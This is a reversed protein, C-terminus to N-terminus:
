CHNLKQYLAMYRDVMRRATFKKEYTLRANAGLKDSLKRNACLHAISQRLEQVCGAKVLIGDYGHTVISTNGSKIKTTIAPRGARFGELIAIGFAEARSTSPLVVCACNKILEIKQAETVSEYCIVNLGAALSMINEPMTGAIVLYISRDSERMAEILIEIGKYWRYQGVFLVYRSPLRSLDIPILAADNTECAIDPSGIPVVAVNIRNDLFKSCNSKYIESTFVVLGYFRLIYRAFFNYAYGFISKGLVDAHYTVITKSKKFGLLLLLDATPWPFHFHTIDAWSRLKLGIRIFDLSFPCSLFNFTLPCSIIEIGDYKEIRLHSDPSTCLIKVHCGRALCGDTLSKVFTEIGGYTDFFSFKCIHLIKLM